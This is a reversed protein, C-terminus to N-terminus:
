PWSDDGEHSSGALDTDYSTRCGECTVHKPASCMEFHAWDEPLEQWPELDKLLRYAEERAEGSLELTSSELFNRKQCKPCSWVFAQELNVTSDDM